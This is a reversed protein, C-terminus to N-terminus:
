TNTIPYETPSGCVLCTKTHPNMPSNVECGECHGWHEWSVCHRLVELQGYKLYIRYCRKYLEECEEPTRLM